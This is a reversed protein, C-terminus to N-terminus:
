TRRHAILSGRDALRAELDRQASRAEELAEVARETEWEAWALVRIAEERAAKADNAAALEAAKAGMAVAQAATMRQTADVASAESLRALQEAEQRRDELLAVDQELHERVEALTWVAYSAAIVMTGLIAGTVVPAPNRKALLRLALWPQRGDMSTPRHTRWARLDDALAEASPYRRSPDRHM